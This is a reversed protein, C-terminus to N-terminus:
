SFLRCLSHCPRPHRPHGIHHSVRHHSRACYSYIIHRPSSLCRPCRTHIVVFNPLVWVFSETALPSSFSSTFSIVLMILAIYVLVLAVIHSHTVCLDLCHRGPYRGPFSSSSSHRTHRHSTYSYSRSSSHSLTFPPPGIV